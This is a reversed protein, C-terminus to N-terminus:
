QDQSGVDRTKKTSREGKEWKQFTLECTAPDGHPPRSCIRAGVTNKREPPRPSLGNEGAYEPAHPVRVTKERTNLGAGRRKTKSWVRHMARTM